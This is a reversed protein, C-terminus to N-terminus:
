WRGFLDQNAAPTWSPLCNLVRALAELGIM